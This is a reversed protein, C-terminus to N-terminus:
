GDLVWGGGWFGVVVWFGVVAWFGVALVWGGGLVWGGSYPDGGRARQLLQINIHMAM